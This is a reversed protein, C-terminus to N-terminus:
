DEAFDSLDHYFNLIVLGGNPMYWDDDNAFDAYDPSKIGEGVALEQSMQLITM